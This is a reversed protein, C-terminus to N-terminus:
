PLLTTSIKQIDAEGAVICSRMHSLNPLCPRFMAGIKDDRLKGVIKTWKKIRELLEM